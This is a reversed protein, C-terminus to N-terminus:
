RVIMHPPIEIIPSNITVAPNAATYPIVVNPGLSDKCFLILAM